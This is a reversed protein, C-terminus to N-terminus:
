GVLAAEKLAVIEAMQANLASADEGHHARRHCNPCIGAMQRPDDPGGDSVRRIHHPELYPQGSASTFPAPLGCCECIGNARALVYARVTASRQYVNRKTEGAKTSPRAAEFARKRLTQLGQDIEEPSPASDAPLERDAPVLTFVIANRHNGNRDPQREFEWGAYNFMGIFRASGGSKAKDFLLIDKGDAAHDRIAKNGKHMFQDGVQGEGTYILSGDPQWRDDYGSKSGGHGTIIFIVPHSKPTSIGGQEQGGYVGHIDRKRSYLENPIFPWTM